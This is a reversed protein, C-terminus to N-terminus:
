GTARPSPVRVEIMGEVPAEEVVVEAGARGARVAVRDAIASGNPLIRVVSAASPDVPGSLVLDIVVSQGPAVSVVTAHRWTDDVLLSGAAGPAGDVTLSEIPLSTHVAVEVRSTGPASGDEDDGVVYTPLGDPVTSDLEIRVHATATTGADDVDIGFDIRRTLYADLKNSRLNTHTVVLEDLARVPRGDRDVGSAGSLGLRDLYGTSGDTVTPRFLLRRQAVLPGLRDALRRPEPLAGQTLEDFVADALDALLEKREVQGDTFFQYQDRLLFDVANAREIRYPVGDIRVPGTFELLAAIVYPDIYVVGDVAVGTAQEFLDASVETVLGVDPWATWNQPFREPRAAALSSPLDGAVTAEAGELGEMIQRASYPEFDLRGGDVRLVGFAGAFGGLERAEAPNAILLLYARPGDAGLLDPADLLADRADVVAPLSRDIEDDLEAMASQLPAVLWPNAVEDITRQARELRELVAETRPVLGAVRDLDVGGDAVLGDGALDQATAALVETLAAGDSSLETVADLHPGLVPVLRGGRAWVSSGAESAARFTTGAAEFRQVAVDDRGRGFAELGARAQGTARDLDSRSSVLAVGSVAALVVLGAVAVLAAIGAVRRAGADLHAAGSAVLVVAVASAALASLGFTAGADLGLSALGTLAGVAAGVVPLDRDLVVVVLALGLAALALVTAPVDGALLGTLGSAVLLAWPRARSAFLAVVAVLVARYAADVAELGTAAADFAVAAAAGGAVAVFAM